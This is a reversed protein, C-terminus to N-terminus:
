GQEKWEWDWTWGKSGDAWLSLSCTIPSVKAKTEPSSSDTLTSMVCVSRSYSLKKHVVWSQVAGYSVNRFTRRRSFVVYSKSQGGWNLFGSSGKNRLNFMNNPPPSCSKTRCDTALLEFHAVGTFHSMSPYVLCVNLACLTHGVELFGPFQLLAPFWLETHPLCCNRLNKPPFTLEKFM